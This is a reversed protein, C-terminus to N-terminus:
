PAVLTIRVNIWWCKETVIRVRYKQKVLIHRLRREAINVCVKYTETRCSVISPQIVERAKTEIYAPSTDWDIDITNDHLNIVTSSTTALNLGNFNNVVLDKFHYCVNQKVSDIIDGWFSIQLFATGDSIVANRVKREVKKPGVLRVIAPGNWKIIGVVSIAGATALTIDKLQTLINDTFAFSVSKADEIRSGINSNFFQFGNNSQSLSTLRIPSKLECKSEFICRKTTANNMVRIKNTTSPSTKIDM